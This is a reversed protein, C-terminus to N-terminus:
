NCNRSRSSKKECMHVTEDDHWDLRPYAVESSPRLSAMVLSTGSFRSSKFFTLARPSLFSPSTLTSFARPPM